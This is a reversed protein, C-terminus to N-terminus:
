MRTKLMQVKYLTVHIYWGIYRILYTLLKDAGWIIQKLYVKKRQEAIRLLTSPDTGRM